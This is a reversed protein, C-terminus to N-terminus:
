YDYNNSSYVTFNELFKFRSWFVIGYWWLRSRMVPDFNYWNLPTWNKSIAIQQGKIVFYQYVDKETM